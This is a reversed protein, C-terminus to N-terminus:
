VHRCHSFFPQPRVAFRKQLVLGTDTRFFLKRGETGGLSSATVRIGAAALTELAADVNRGGASCSSGRTLPAAGGFVKCELEGPDVGGERFERLLAQVASDVYRFQDGPQAHRFHEQRRPLLAHFIAGWQQKSAYMTVSVCSGLVTQILTPKKYLGGQGVLLYHHPLHKGGLEEFVNTSLGGRREPQSTNM